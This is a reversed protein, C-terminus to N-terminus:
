DCLSKLYWHPKSFAFWEREYGMRVYEQYLEFFEKIGGTYLAYILIIDAKSIAIGANDMDKDKLLDTITLRSAVDYSIQHHRLERVIGNVSINRETSVVESM